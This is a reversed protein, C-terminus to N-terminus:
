YGVTTPRGDRMEVLFPRGLPQGGATALLHVRGREAPVVLRGDPGAAGEFVSRWSGDVYALLRYAARPEITARVAAPDIAVESRWGADPDNSGALLWRVSGDAALVFPPAAPERAGQRYDGPQFTALLLVDERCGVNEFTAAGDEGARAGGVTRWDGHNLVDLYVTAGPRGAPIRVTAAPGFRATVDIQGGPAAMYIKAATVEGVYRRFFPPADGPECGMISLINGDPCPVGIWAHNGDSRAWAPTYVHEGPIGVAREFAIEFNVMDECRGEHVAFDTLVGLDEWTTAGEYRFIGATLTNIFRVAAEMTPLDALEPRLSEFLMPRWRQLPENTGRLPLVHDLFDAAPISPGWPTERRARLAYQVHEALHEASIADQDAVARGDQYRFGADLRAVVALGAAQADRDGDLALFARALEAARPGRFAEAARAALADGPYLDSGRAAEAARRSVGEPTEGAPLPPLHWPEGIIPCPPPQYLRLIVRAQADSVVRDIRSEEGRFLLAHEIGTFDRVLLYTKDSGFRDLQGREWDFAAIEDRIASPLDLVRIRGEVAPDGAGVGFFRQAVGDILRSRLDGPGDPPAAPALRPAISSLALVAVAAKPWGRM